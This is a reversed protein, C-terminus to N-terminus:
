FRNLFKNEVINLLNSGSLKRGISHCEITASQAPDCPRLEFSKLEYNSGWDPPNTSSSAGKLKSDSDLENQIEDHTREFYSLKHLHSVFQSDCDLSFGLWLTDIWDDLTICNLFEARECLSFTLNWFFIGFNRPFRIGTSIREYRFSIREGLFVSCFVAVKLGFSKLVLSCMLSATSFHFNNM